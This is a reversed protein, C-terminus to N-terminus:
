GSNVKHLENAKHKNKNKDKQRKLAVDEACPPEWALPGISAVAALRCWLERCCWIRLVSLSALSKVQLRM